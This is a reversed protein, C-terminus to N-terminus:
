SRYLHRQWERRARREDDAMAREVLEISADVLWSPFERPHLWRRGQSPGRDCAARPLQPPACPPRSRASLNMRSIQTEM